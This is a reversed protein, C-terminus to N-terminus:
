SLAAELKGATVKASTEDDANLHISYSIGKDLRYGSAFASVNHFIFAPNNRAEESVNSVLWFDNQVALDAASAYLENEEALPGTRVQQARDLAATIVPKTGLLATRADVFALIIEDGKAHAPGILQVGKFATVVAGESAATKQLKALDFRGTAIVLMYAPSKGNDGSIPSSILLRDVNGLMEGISKWQAGDSSVSQMAKWDIGALLQADRHAFRWYAPEVNTRPLTAACFLVPCTLFSFLLLNRM